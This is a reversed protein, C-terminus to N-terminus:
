EHGHSLAEQLHPDRLPLLPMRDIQRVFLALWVGGIGIPAAVDLWHVSFARGEFSPAITWYLDVLRMVFVLLAVRILHRPSRKVRRMLLLGFPLAFHLLILSLGVLEWGGSMRRLYWPVEEPLNASWIILFQSLAFYAWVLVFTFLLKALDHLHAPRIAGSLPKTGSLLIAAAIVLCFASVGQGAILILGFITSFWQPELSMVWDVSAFSMTLVMLVLGGASLAQFRRLLREDGTEDQRRSWRNLLWALTIWVAFYFVARGVFFPVNLYPAKHQLLADGAVEAPRAWPYLVPLGVLLPVFLVVMMPLTRTGSELLRRIIIGWAGGTVHQIMVIALCGLAVGLWFMYAFLYARFFRDPRYFAGVACVGLAAIGVAMARGRFREMTATV